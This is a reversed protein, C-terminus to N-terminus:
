PRTGVVDVSDRADVQQNHPMNEVVIATAAREDGSTTRNETSFIATEIEAGRQHQRNPRLYYREFTDTRLSWNAHLKVTQIPIRQLVAKTAAAARIFHPKYQETDIKVCAILTKLWSATTAPKISRRDERDIYALFFTHDPGLESTEERMSRTKEMFVETTLVPCVEQDDVPGLNSVKAQSEKPKRIIMTLGKLQGYHDRYITVDRWQLRGLDSRIRWMSAIALLVLTKQQLQVLSLATTP